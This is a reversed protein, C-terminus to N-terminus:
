ESERTRCFWTPSEGTLQADSTTPTAPYLLDDGPQWDAPAVVDGGATRQLAAVTRLMEDVSRGIELPYWMMARIIGDPDIFYSARVTSTDQATADLMGYARAIAMSPDEVLPFPITVGFGEEIAKLWAVHSYLSDVSLGLLACDLEAFKDAARAISVFESTCVPTFDAPHSFFLLWRGRYDDSSIDGATSRATFSPVADGIRLPRPPLLAQEASADTM